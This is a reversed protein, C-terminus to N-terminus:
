AARPWYACPKVYLFRWVNSHTAAAFGYALLLLHLEALVAFDVDCAVVFDLCLQIPLGLIVEFSHKFFLYSCM